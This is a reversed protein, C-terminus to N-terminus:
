DTASHCGTSRGSQYGNFVIEAWVSLETVWRSWLGGLFGISNVRPDIAEVLNRQKTLSM